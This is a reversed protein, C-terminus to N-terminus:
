ASARRRLTGTHLALTHVAPFPSSSEIRTARGTCYPCLRDGKHTSDFPLDCCLCLLRRKPSKKVIRAGYYDSAHNKNTEQKRKASCEPSCTLKNLNSRPLFRKGCIVCTVRRQKMSEPLNDWLWRYSVGLTKCISKLGEGEERLRAAELATELPIIKPM